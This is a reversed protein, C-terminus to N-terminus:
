KLMQESQIHCESLNAYPCYEMVIFSVRQQSDYYFAKYFSIQPHQLAKINFFTEKAEEVQEDELKTKKVAYLKGTLKEQCKYVCANCGQGLKEMLDYKAYFAESDRAVM